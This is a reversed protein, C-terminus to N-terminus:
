KGKRMGMRTRPFCTYTLRKRSSSQKNITEEVRNRIDHVVSIELRRSLTLSSYCSYETNGNYRIAHKLNSLLVELTNAFCTTLISM